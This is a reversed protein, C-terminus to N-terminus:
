PVEEQEPLHIHYIKQQGGVKCRLGAAEDLLLVAEKVEGTEHSPKHREDAGM